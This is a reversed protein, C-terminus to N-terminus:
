PKTKKPNEEAQERKPWAIFRVVALSTGLYREVDSLSERLLAPGENDCENGDPAALAQPSPSDPESVGHALIAPSHESDTPTDLPFADWLSRAFSPQEALEETRRPETSAIISLESMAEWGFRWSGFLEDVAEKRAADSPMAQPFLPSELRSLPGDPDIDSKPPNLELRRLEEDVDIGLGTRDARTRTVRLAEADNVTDTAGNLPRTQQTTGSGTANATINATTDTDSAINTTAQQGAVEGRAVGNIISTANETSTMPTGTEGGAFLTVVVTLATDHSPTVETMPGTPAAPTFVFIQDSGVNTVLVLGADLMKIASPDTLDGTLTAFDRAVDFLGATNAVLEAVSGNDFAAIVDGDAITELANVSPGNGPQFVIEATFTNLDIRVIGGDGTAAFAIGSTGLFSPSGLGAAVNLIQPTTDQFFGSGQGGSGIGPLLAIKGDSNTVALNVIGSTGSSQVNVAIPGSGQSILRQYPTAAWSGTAISGILVSVDNSGNNAVLLDPVGDNNVDAVTIAVPNDGVNDAGLFIFQGSVADYHYVLVNNSLSNAVVLYPNLDGQVYFTQVAGPALLPLAGTGNVAIPSSLQNTGPILYYLSVQNSNQDAVVAFQQGTSALSGVALSAHQLNARDPAFGGQGDYLLTLIDGYANGVLLEPAAEPGPKGDRSQGGVVSLGTPANGANIVNPQAFTGDGNNRYIWIQNLDEMLIAVSPLTDGPLTLSVIQSAQASTPFYANSVQPNGFSGQGLNPLLTFSKANQNLAILDDNASGIFAGAVVDVTKLQSLVTQDNIAFDIGFLGSGARYRSQQSFSHTPDNFLVSVDGSVQDSVVIDLGNQGGLNAFAIGSPEAGVPQTATTFTGDKQQFAITISNDFDNAVVLDDLGNGTLDNAAIRVPLNGTAFGVTRQFSQTTTDWTYLSVTGGVEDLAAVAWGAATRYLTVDRAPHGPNIIVPPIFQGPTGALGRRLLLDGSGNLILPDPIGDGTLDQLFPINRIAIGNAPTATQFQGNGRGTLVSVTNGGYNTAVIDLNGDNNFDGVTVSETDSGGPFFDAPLFTGNGLGQLVSLTNNGVDATILDLNGDQNLDGVAVSTPINGVPYSAAAMLSGNGEGLLVSVTNDGNNATVLDLNGDHNFDGVALADPYNGVAYFVASLYSGDSRGMLVSVTNDNSNATVIDANGDHNFDGVALADPSNGVAYFVAPLFTGDGRGILVSVTNDTYNAVVIDLNGDHNFDGVALADPFNGVAYSVAPLFTGDGRGLLISVTNDGSNATAIDLNGDQNFDGVVVSDPSNGVPYNASVFTGDGRGLLVTVASDNNDGTVLDLNGDHNFDGTAVGDPSNGVTFSPASLFTGDGRGLLVSLTNDFANASVLDPNGDGNFDGLAVDEPTNGVTYTIGPQFKGDGNGLFVSVTNNNNSNATILDLDGDHNVDGVTLTM